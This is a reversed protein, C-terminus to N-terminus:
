RRAPQTADPPYPRVRAPVPSRTRLYRSGLRVLGVLRSDDSLVEPREPNAIESEAIGRIGAAGLAILGLLAAVLLLVAPLTGDLIHAM